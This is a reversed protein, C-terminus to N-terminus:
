AAKQGAPTEDELLDIVAAEVKGRISPGAAADIGDLEGVADRITSGARFRDFVRPDIYSTRCVTPTNGLFEAVERVAAAMTRKRSTRSKEGGAAMALSVAALVTANWTRFEKATFEAGAIEKLYENIDESRVDRWKGGDRYALLEASGGRRRKLGRVVEAVDRDVVSQIRRRGGKAAYDFTVQDGDLSVHRKEITALGYSGNQEAYDESGIRFFGVDLLRVACALVRQRPFGERALHRSCARRIRPLARGFELMHQFKAQDRRERWAPHYLYQKRGAADTGVAQLHGNPISCIWVDKWAPPIVLRRIRELVESGSVRRGGADVYEFGKGRRRRTIGPESSDVRRLRPM